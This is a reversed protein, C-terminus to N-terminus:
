GKKTSVSISIMRIFYTLLTSITYILIEGWQIHEGLFYRRFDLLIIIALIMAAFAIPNIERFDKRIGALFFYLFPIGLAKQLINVSNTQESFLDSTLIFTIIFFLIGLILYINKEKM